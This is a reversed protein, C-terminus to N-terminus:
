PQLRLRKRWLHDAEEVSSGLKRNYKLNYHIKREM